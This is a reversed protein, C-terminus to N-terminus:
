PLYLACVLMFVLLEVDLGTLETPRALESAALQQAPLLHEFVEEAILAHFRQHSRSGDHCAMSSGNSQAPQETTPPSIFSNM